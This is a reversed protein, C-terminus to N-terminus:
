LQSDVIEGLFDDIYVFSGYYKQFNGRGGCVFVM